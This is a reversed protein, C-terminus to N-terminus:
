SRSSQFEIFFTQSNNKTSDDLTLVLQWSMKPESCSGLIADSVYSDQQPDYRFFLPIKGMYMNKGELYATLQLNEALESGQVLIQFEQESTVKNVNFLLHFQGFRTDFQCQSQGTICQPEVYNSALKPAPSCGALLFNAVFLLLVTNLRSKFLM